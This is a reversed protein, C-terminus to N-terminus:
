KTVGLHMMHNAADDDDGMEGRVKIHNKLCCRTIQAAGCRSWANPNKEQSFGFQLASEVVFQSIPDTGGFVLLGVLWPPFSTPFDGAIQAYQLPWSM